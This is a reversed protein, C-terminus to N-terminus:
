PYAAFALRWQGSAASQDGHEAGKDDDKAFDDFGAQDDADHHRRRAAHGGAPAPDTEADEAAQEAGAQDGDEGARDRLGEFAGALFQEIGAHEADGHDHQHPVVGPHRPVAALDGLLHAGDAM